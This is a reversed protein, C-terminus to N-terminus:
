MGVQMIPGLRSVVASVYRRARQTGRGVGLRSVEGGRAVGLGVKIRKVIRYATQHARGRKV